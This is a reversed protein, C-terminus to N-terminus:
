PMPSKPETRDLMMLLEAATARLRGMVRGMALMIFMLTSDTPRRDGMLVDNMMSTM